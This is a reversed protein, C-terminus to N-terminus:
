QTSISWHYSGLYFNSNRMWTDSYGSSGQPVYLTGYTKIQYFTYQQITPATTANCTISTLGSTRSFAHNGISTLGTGISVSTLGSCYTFASEGISTVSDPINISKLSNCARFVNNEILTVNNSITASTLKNCERFASDGISTVSNPIEVSTLGSCKYFAYTGITTVGSPISISTLGSCANFASAGIVIVSNPIVFSTLQTFGSFLKDSIIRTNNELTYSTLSNDMVEVACNDAYRINNIIPMSTASFAKSGISKVSDPINISSLRTCEAFANDEIRTISNPLTFSTMKDCIRFAGDGIVEVSNGFTFSTVDNCQYFANIGINVVTDSLTIDTVNYLAQFAEREINEVGPPVHVTKANNCQYLDQYGVATQNALTYKVIHEGISSFTHGTVVSPQVVGDIEIESFGSTNNLIKVTEATSPVSHVIVLRSDLVPRVSIGYSRLTYGASVSNNDLSIGYSQSSESENPYSSWITAESGAQSLNGNVYYGSAPIFIYNGNSATFKGGNVGSGKFNTEWTYTTNEILEQCQASTPMCWEYGWSMSPTDATTSLREETGSYDSQGSTSQYTYTGKGYQYYKGYETEELAGVNTKAWMTRSPLGLDVYEHSTITPYLLTDGLFIKCDKSGVKFSSVEFSGLKIGNAM